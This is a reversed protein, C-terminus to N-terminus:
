WLQHTLITEQRQPGTSVLLVDAELLEAIHEVYRQAKEPLKRWETTGTTSTRWGPMWELVPACASLAHEGLPLSTIREGEYEYATCIGIDSFTDLVDLKTIALWRAANIWQAHRLGVIDLWGCRRPRGTTAGFEDGRQRLTAGLSGGLETPFPGEGVRTTYAKVVGVVQDLRSPALGLGICSGGAAASSSTVYPYTGHDIDLLTGQAGELLLNRGERWARQLLADVDTIFPRLEEGFKLYQATVAVADLASGESGQCHEALFSGKMALNTAVKTRLTPEHLLDIVRIGSRGMKDAYAPGIGRATTGIKREARLAETARDLLRHYPMIVHAKASIRLNDDIKHGEARLLRMEELLAAPDVVVGHGIVSLVDKRLIGSPITHLVYKVGEIVVTHGANNGGQYRAVIDAGETLLDVVKGKGEDGWQMGVVAVVAM